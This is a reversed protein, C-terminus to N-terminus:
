LQNVMFKALIKSREKETGAMYKSVLKNKHLYNLDFKPKEEELSVYEGELSVYEGLKLDLTPQKGRNQIKNEM